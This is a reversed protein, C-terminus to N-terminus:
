IGLPEKWIGREKDKPPSKRGAYLHSHRRPTFGGEMSEIKELASRFINERINIAEKEANELFMKVWKRKSKEGYPCFCESVPLGITTVMDRIKDETVFILPRILALKGEFMDQRPAMSAFEGNFFLNLLATEAFDDRHHGFAVRDFDGTSAFNFIAKRRYWSCLFCNPKQDKRLHDRIRIRVITLPLGIADAFARIKEEKACGGCTIDTKVNIAAMNFSPAFWSEMDKLLYALLSSDKGGSLALLVRSGESFLSFQAIARMMDSQIGRKKRKDARRM